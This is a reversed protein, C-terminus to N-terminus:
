DHNITHNPMPPSWSMVQKAPSSTFPDPGSPNSYSVFDGWRVCAGVGAGGGAAAQGAVGAEVQGAGGVAAWGQV